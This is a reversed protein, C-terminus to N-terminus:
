EQWGAFLMLASFHRKVAGKVHLFYLDDFWNDNIVSLNLKTFIVKTNITHYVFYAYSHLLIIDSDDSLKLIAYAHVHQVSLIM